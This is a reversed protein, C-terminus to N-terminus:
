MPPIMPSLVKASFGIATALVWLGASASVIYIATEVCTNFPDKMLNLFYTQIKEKM